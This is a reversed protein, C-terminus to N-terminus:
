SPEVCRKASERSEEEAISSLGLGEVGGAAALLVPVGDGVAVASGEEVGGVVDVDIIVVIMFPSSRGGGKM